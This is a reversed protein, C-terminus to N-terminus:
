SAMPDLRRAPRDQARCSFSCVGDHETIMIATTGSATLYNIAAKHGAIQGPARPPCGDHGDAMGSVLAMSVKKNVHGTVIKAFRFGPIDDPRPTRALRGHKVRSVAREIVGMPRTKQRLVDAVRGGNWGRSFQLQAGYQQSKPRSGELVEKKLTATYNYPRQPRFGFTL